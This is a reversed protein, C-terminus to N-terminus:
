DAEWIWKKFLAVAQAASRAEVCGAAFGEKVEPTSTRAGEWAYILYIYSGARSKLHSNLNSNRAGEIVEEEFCEAIATPSFGARQLATLISTKGALSVCLIKGSSVKKRIIEISTQPQTEIEFCKVLEVIPAADYLNGFVEFRIPITCQEQAVRIVGGMAEQLYRQSESRGLCVLLGDATRVLDYLRGKFAALSGKGNPIWILRDRYIREPYCEDLAIKVPDFFGVVFAIKM